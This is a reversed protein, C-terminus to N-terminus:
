ETPLGLEKWRGFGGAMSIPEKLIGLYALTKAATMSRVGSRCSLVMPADRRVEDLHFGLESLPFNRVGPIRGDKTLEWPDRVDIWAAAGGGDRFIEGVELAANRAQEHVQAGARIAFVRRRARRVM